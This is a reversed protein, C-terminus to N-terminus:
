ESKTKKKKEILVQGWTPAVAEGKKKRRLAKVRRNAEKARPHEPALDLFNDYEELASDVRGDTEFTEAIHFHATCAIPAEAHEKAIRQYAKRAEGSKKLKKQLIFASAHEALPARKDKPQGQAFRRYLKLAGDYDRKRRVREAEKFTGEATETPRLSKLIPELAPGLAWSGVELTRVVRESEPTSWRGKIGNVRKAVRAERISSLVEWCLEQDEPNLAFLRELYLEVNQAVELGETDNLSRMVVQVQALDALVHQDRLKSQLEALDRPLRWTKPRPLPVRGSTGDRGEQAGALDVSTAEPPGNRESGAPTETSREPNDDMHTRAFMLLLTAALLLAAAVLVVMRGSWVRRPPAWRRRRREALRRRLGAQVRMFGEDEETGDERLVEAFMRDESSVRSAYERCEACRDLHQQAEPQKRLAPLGGELLARVDDCNM